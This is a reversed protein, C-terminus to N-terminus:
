MADPDDDCGGCDKEDGKEQKRRRSRALLWGLLGGVAGLLPRLFYTPPVSLPELGHDDLMLLLGIIAGTLISLFLPRSIKQRGFWCGYAVALIFCLGDIHPAYGAGAFLLMLFQNNM